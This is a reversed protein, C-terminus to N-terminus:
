LCFAPAFPYWSTSSATGTFYCFFGVGRGPSRFWIPATYPKDPEYDNAYAPLKSQVNDPRHQYTDMYDMNDDYFKYPFGETQMNIRTSNAVGCQFENESLIFVKDSTIELTPAPLNQNAWGPNGSYTKKDVLKVLSRIYSPLANYFGDNCWARRDCLKWSRQLYNNDSDYLNFQMIGVETNNQGEFDGVTADRLCNKLDVTILAKTKGNISTTLDDHEFDIIQITVTQARHSELDTWGNGSTGIASLSIDRTDGLHWSKQIDELSYTGNYYGNIIDAIQQDTASAFSPISNFLEDIQNSSVRAKVNDIYQKLLCDYLKLENLGLVDNRRTDAM